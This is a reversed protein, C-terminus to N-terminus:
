YLGIYPRQICCFNFSPRLRTHMCIWSRIDRDFTVQRPLSLEQFKAGPPSLKLSRFNWLEIIKIGEFYDDFNISVLGFVVKYYFVLHIYLRRLELSPLSLLRLLRKTGKRIAGHFPRIFHGSPQLTNWHQKIYSQSHSLKVDSLWWYIWPYQQLIALGWSTTLVRINNFSRNVLDAPRKTQVIKPRGYPRRQYGIDDTVIQITAFRCM